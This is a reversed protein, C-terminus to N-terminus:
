AADGGDHFPCRQVRLGTPKWEYERLRRGCHCHADSERIVRAGDVSSVELDEIHALDSCHEFAIGAMEDPVRFQVITM